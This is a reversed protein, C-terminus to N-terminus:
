EHCFCDALGDREGFDIDRQALVADKMRRYSPRDKRFFGARPSDPRAEEEMRIWWDALAPDSRLLASITKASKLFCLDCNGAPTMGDIIPLGLDFPQERWFVAVDPSTVGAHYLPATTEWRERQDKLKAVRRAEDARLGVANTWHEWGMSRAYDRMVRIKLSTTCFRMVPNPLYQRERLLAEYPEGKRSASAHDVVRFKRQKEGDQAYELWVIHVNWRQGCDRVFDLTQPMEKGTNAFCAVVGEPLRGKYADLIQRLMYGSTRGGSFSILAPPEIQYPNTM